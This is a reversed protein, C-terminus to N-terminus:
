KHHGCEPKRFFALLSAPDEVRARDCGEAGDDPRARGFCQLRDVGLAAEKISPPVAKLAARSAIIITPLVLLAMLGVAVGILPRRAGACTPSRPMWPRARMGARLVVGPGFRLVAKAAAGPM